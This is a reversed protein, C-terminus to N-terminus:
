IYNDGIPVALIDGVHEILNIRPIQIKSVLRVTTYAKFASRFLILTKGFLDKNVLNCM